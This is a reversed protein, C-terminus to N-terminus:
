SYPHSFDYNNDMDNLIQSLAIKTLIKSLWSVFSVIGLTKTDNNNKIELVIGNKKQQQQQKQTESISSHSVFVDLHVSM